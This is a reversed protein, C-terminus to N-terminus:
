FGCGVGGFGCNCFSMAAALNSAFEPVREHRHTLAVERGYAVNAAPYWANTPMALGLADRGFADRENGARHSRDRAAGRRRRERRHAQLQCPNPLGPGSKLRVGWLEGPRVPQGLDDRSGVLLSPRAIALGTFPLRALEAELEGKVRSYFVERSRM